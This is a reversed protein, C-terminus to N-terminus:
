PAPRRQTAARPDSMRAAFWISTMLLSLLLMKM